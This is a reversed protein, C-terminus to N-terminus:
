SFTLSLPWPRPRQNTIRMKSNQLMESNDMLHFEERRTM